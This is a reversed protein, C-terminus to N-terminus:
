EDLMKRFEEESLVPIGLKQAQALKSGPENGAVVFSTKKSVASAARGGRRRILEEAEPRSYGALAGTLVFTKGALPGSKTKSGAKWRVGAEKLRTILSINREMKFFAAIADAAVPGLDPIKELTERDAAMIEDLGTFHTELTQAMKAGVQRIGLAFILRWLDRKKSDEIATMLNAASKEAMRELGAIQEKKLFYLDAPNRAMGRDVLQDVLAEGLGEIDMAGRAAFHRLWRKLQAPCQLNECRHAVEGPRRTIEGGCVPCSEPMKFTKEHGRRAAINVSVVEPIVEGAKEIFVRDGIRVDKRQIEGANHLTARNITSGSLFVPELEAVPTLVGTRGVQVTISKLTTEAREPEYKFAAAWRPSKATAGLAAYLGRENVKLVGGDTEFPFDPRMAKLEDLARFVEELSLCKWYKPPTKLGFLKLAALMEEHTALNIGAIEGAGYFVADLPRRGAERADLLKLSGAAANRPNAFPELGEEERARNLALFDRRPMFVEGRFEIIEPTRDGALRLPISPIARLNATIDDGTIGDGRTSGLQLLGKEYRLAIAAGDIKPELVYSFKEGSLLRQIREHFRVLEDRSYTNALSMMPFSHRVQRFERLPEGGVRQTPSDPTILAPSLKELAELEAYLRDYERDSIEPRAFVYYLRNHREIVSRLHKIKKEAEAFNM